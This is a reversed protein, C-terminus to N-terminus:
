ASSPTPPNGGIDRVNHKDRLDGAEAPASEPPLQGRIRSSTAWWESKIESSTGPHNREGNRSSRARTPPAEVPGILTREKPKQMPSRIGAFLVVVIAPMSNSCRM